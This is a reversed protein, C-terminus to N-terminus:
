QSQSKRSQLGGIAAELRELQAAQRQNVERQNKIEALLIPVLMQYAVTEIQGDAGHVVLEPAISSVEEAILGYQLPKTGDPQPNKYRFSVPNLGDVIKSHSAIPSIDEKYRRASSLTGLQGNSDIYVAAGSTVNTGYVGAVYTKTHEGLAGIRITNSDNSSGLSGVFINNSGSLLEYGSNYGLAINKDGSVVNGLSGYGVAVIRNGIFDEAATGGVSVNEVGTTNRYLSVTGVATNFRGTTNFKSSDKGVGVNYEGTTNEILSSAGVATNDQGSTKMLTLHGIATNGDAQTVNAMSRVGVATNSNGSINQELVGFGVATNSAGTMNLKLVGVGVSTNYDAPSNTLSEPGVAISTSFSGSVQIGVGRDGTVGREGQLGM